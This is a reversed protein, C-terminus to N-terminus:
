TFLKATIKSLDKGMRNFTCKETSCDCIALKYHSWGYISFLYSKYHRIKKAAKLADDSVKDALIFLVVDSNRHGYYPKIRSIGREWAAKDLNSLKEADLSDEAAFFVYENSDIDAIHASKVLLYKEGHAHFEAEASFPPEVDSTKVNYYRTFSNLIKELAENRNM